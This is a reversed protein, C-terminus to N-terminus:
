EASLFINDILRIKGVRVAGAICYEGGDSLREVPRFTGADVISLYDIAVDRVSRIMDSMESLIIRADRRGSRYLSEGHSLAKYLISARSREESSLYVNRSSLALGDPERVTPVMIISVPINLDHVMRRVTALQQADKQGFYANDAQTILLLKLVVTTVGRFHGPRYEGELFESVTGTEVYTSYGEPYMDAVGPIFCYDVGERLAIERDHDIDRPYKEFDEQPGFQAPNVFITLILRDNEERARRILAIHGEHLYGMTPVVGISKGAKRDNLSCQQMEPPSSIIKM